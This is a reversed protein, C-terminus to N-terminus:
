ENTLSFLNNENKNNNCNTTNLFHLEIEDEHAGAEAEIKNSTSSRHPPFCDRIIKIVYQMYKNNTYFWGVGCWGIVYCMFYVFYDDVGTQM